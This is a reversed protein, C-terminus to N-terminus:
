ADPEILKLGGMYPHLCAPIEVTGDSRYYTELLAILCRGIAVGSGNLTHIFDVAGRDNRYRTNMRRAQYDGCTSCSSIERYRQQSPLWVEIDYTKRAADGMDGTSLLVVRWALGLRDLVAEACGVMRELEDASDEPRTLSVLEVKSFQHQRFMGKTDRGAAGAERRFCPTWATYRLPLADADIIQERKLNTLPVEATPILWYDDKTTFSQDAFKPLQGTGFMTASRVLLPPSIERYGFEGCHLDLMFSALARELRSLSGSLVVFRSGSIAAATEFDMMNLARGIADHEPTLGIRPTGGRRMEINAADDAGYPVGPYPLNPLEAIVKDRLSRLEREKEEGERLAQKLVVMDAQSPAFDDDQGIEKSMTNRRQRLIQIQNVQERWARDHALVAEACPAHNRARLADDLAEPNDRIWRIDLM